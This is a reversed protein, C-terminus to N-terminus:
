QAIENLWAVIKDKYKMRMLEIQDDGIKVQRETTSWLGVASLVFILFFASFAYFASVGVFSLLAFSAAMFLCSILMSDAFSTWILGNHMALKSKSKLGDDGDVINFFLIKLRGWTFVPSDAINGISLLGSRLNETIKRHYSGNTIERLPTIYYIAAPVLIVPSYQISKLDPASFSWLGTLKGLFESFLVFLTAPVFFRWKKLNELTM